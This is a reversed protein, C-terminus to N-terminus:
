DWDQAKTKGTICFDSIEELYNSFDKNVEALRNISNWDLDFREKAPIIIQSESYNELDLLIFGIGHLSSLMLLEKKAREELDAAVLYGFNAWSSNSVAQFFASRVNSTNILRKVEFSWLKAKKDGYLKACEMAISSWEAALDELAVIDPYLWENGKPGRNNNSHREDIRKAYLKHEAKLYEILMPYLEHELPLQKSTKQQEEAITIEAADSQKTYYYKRPRGDTVKIHPNKKQIISTRQAGIEAVLQQILAADTNIPYAVAKSRLKKAHCEEPYTAFIWEAIQRATFKDEAHCKLFSIVKSSISLAM